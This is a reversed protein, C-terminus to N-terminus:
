AEDEVAKVECRLTGWALRVSVGDGVRVDRARRLARGRTDQALAYGRRLVGLPSLADLSAVAVELRSRADELRAGFNADLAARNVALRM